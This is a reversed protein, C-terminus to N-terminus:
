TVYPLRLSQCRYTTFAVRRRAEEEEQNQQQQQQQQQQKQDFKLRRTASSKQSAGAGEDDDDSSKIHDLVRASKKKSDPPKAFPSGGDWEPMKQKEVEKAGKGAPSPKPPPSSSFVDAADRDSNYSSLTSYARKKVGYGKNVSHYVLFFTLSSCLSSRLSDRPIRLAEDNM